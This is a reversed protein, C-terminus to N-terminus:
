DVRSTNRAVERSMREVDKKRPKMRFIGRMERKVRGDRVFSYIREKVNEYSYFEIGNGINHEYTVTAAKLDFLGDMGYRLLLATYFTYKGTKRDYCGRKDVSM